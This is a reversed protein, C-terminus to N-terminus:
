AHEACSPDPSRSLGSDLYLFLETKHYSVGHGRMTM